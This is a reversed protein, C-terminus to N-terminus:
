VFFGSVGDGEQLSESAVFIDLFNDVGFRQSSTFSLHSVSSVSHLFSGKNHVGVLVDFEDLGESIDGTNFNGVNISEGEFLEGRSTLDSSEANPGLRGERGKVSKESRVSFSSDLFRSVLQLSVGHLVSVEGSDDVRVFNLVDDSSGGFVNNTVFDLLFVRELVSFEHISQVGVSSEESSGGGLGVEGILLLSLFGNGFLSSHASGEAFLLFGFKFLSFNVGSFPDVSDEGVEVFGVSSVGGPVLMEVSFLFTDLFVFGVFSKM